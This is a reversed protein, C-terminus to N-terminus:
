NCEWKGGELDFRGRASRQRAIYQELYFICDQSMESDLFEGGLLIKGESGEFVFLYAQDRNAM